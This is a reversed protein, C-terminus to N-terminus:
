LKTNLLAAATRSVLVAGADLGENTILATQEAAIDLFTGLGALDAVYWHRLHHVLQHVDELEEVSRDGLLTKSTGLIGCSEM